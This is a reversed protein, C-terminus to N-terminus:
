LLNEQKFSIFSKQTLILHDHIDIGLLDAASLLKSTIHKDEASPKTDGSPHNHALILSAAHHILAPAFVERPHVLSASLHGVSITEQHILQNRANLYLVVFHEKTKNRIHTIQDVAKQPSDIIPLNHDFSKTARKSLEFAALITVAKDPGIGKIRTLEDLSVSLLTDLPYKNLLARSIDLVSKGERGTRLLIAMLETDKLNEPGKEILKERPRLHKPLSKVTPM